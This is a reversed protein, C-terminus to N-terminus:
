MPCPTLTLRAGRPLIVGYHIESPRNDEVVTASPEAAERRTGDSGGVAIAAEGEQRKAVRSRAREELRQALVLSERGPVEDPRAAADRRPPRRTGLEQLGESVTAERAGRAACLHDDLQRVREDRTM